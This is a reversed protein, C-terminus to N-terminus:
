SAAQTPAVPESALFLLSCAARELLDATVEGFFLREGPRPSVGMVLLDYGGTRIERHIATEATQRSRVEGKVHVGYAKGLEVIDRVTADASSDPALAVGLRARWQPRGNSAPGAVHLATVTGHSGQALAIALEAGHRSVTTGSVPVLINLPGENKGKRHEGRAITIAIPGGFSLASSAIQENFENGETAPERGICLLGYGKKAEDVIAKETAAPEEVRLTLDVKHDSHHVEGKADAAAGGSEAAETLVAATREAQSAAGPLTAATAYDFHLVTTPIQRVGALLGVLRSALQGGYSSDV